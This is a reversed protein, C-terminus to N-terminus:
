AVLPGDKAQPQVPVRVDDCHWRDKDLRRFQKEIEADVQADFYAKLESETLSKDSDKDYREFQAMAKSEAHKLFGERQKERAQQRHKSKSAAAKVDDASKTGDMAGSFAKKFEPSEEFKEDKEQVHKEAKAKAQAMFEDFTVAGDEDTDGEKLIATMRDENELQLLSRVEEKTHSGDADKDVNVFQKKRHFLVKDVFLRHFPAPDGM